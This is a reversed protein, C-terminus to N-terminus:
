HIKAAESKYLDDYFRAQRRNLSVMDDLTKM